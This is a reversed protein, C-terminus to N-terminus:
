ASKSPAQGQDAGASGRARPQPVPHPVASTHAASAAAYMSMAALVFPTPQAQPQPDHPQDESGAQPVSTVMNPIDVAGPSLALVSERHRSLAGTHVSPRTVRM